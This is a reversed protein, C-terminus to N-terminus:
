KIEIENIIKNFYNKINNPSHYAWIKHFGFSNINLIEESAFLSADHISPLKSEILRIHKSFYVDEPISTINQFFLKNKENEFHKCIYKMKEINRLSFGGNGILGCNKKIYENDVVDIWPSGIYDYKIFQEINKKILIGDDQIILCKEYNLLEWFNYNKLITNYIDIHFINVDLERLYEIDAIHGLNKKYYDISNKSTFIKCRWNTNLNIMTFLVSIISLPNNRNDILVVCNKANNNEIKLMSIKKINLKYYKYIFNCYLLIGYKPNNNKIPCINKIYLKFIENHFDISNIYHNENENENTFHPLLLIYKELKILDGINDYITNIICKDYTDVIKNNIKNENKKLLDKSKEDGYIYYIANESKFSLAKFEREIDMYNTITLHCTSFRPLLKYYKIPIDFCYLIDHWDCKYNILVIAKNYIKEYLNVINKIYIDNIELNDILITPKDILKLIFHNDKYIIYQIKEYENMYENDSDNFHISENINYSIPNLKYDFIFSENLKQNTNLINIISIILNSSKESDFINTQYRYILKDYIFQTIFQTNNINENCKIIFNNIENGEFFHLAGLRLHIFSNLIKQYLINNIESDITYKYEEIFNIFDKKTPYTKYIFFWFNSYIINIKLLSNNLIINIDIENNNIFKDIFLSTPYIDFIESFISYLIKKM